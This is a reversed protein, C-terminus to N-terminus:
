FSLLHMHIGCDPVVYELHLRILAIKKSKNLGALIVLMWEELYGYCSVLELAKGDFIMNFLTNNDAQM